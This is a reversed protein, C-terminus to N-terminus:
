GATFSDWESGDPEPAADRARISAYYAHKRARMVAGLPRHAVLAHWPDFSLSEVFSHLRRGAEGAPDQADIAIRALPVFPSPWNVRSDEIPTEPGTFFQARLEYELPTKAVRTATRDRLYDADAPAGAEQGARHVPFVAYRAAYSGFAVAAASYFPRDLISRPRGKAAKALGALLGITRFLGLAGVVRGIGGDPPTAATVFAVFEDPSRFPVTPTDIMLWDQTRADGLVKPGDVDLVKLAFGRLDPARDPQLAGSGNSLRVYARRERPEAFLGQRAHEPLDALVRFRARLAAHSKAHLARKPAGLAAKQRAALREALGAFREEEDPAVTEKWDKSATM